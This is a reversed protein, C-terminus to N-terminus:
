WPHIKMWGGGQFNAVVIKHMNWEHFRSSELAFVLKLAFWSCKMSSILSYITNRPHVKNWRSIEYIKEHIPKWGM